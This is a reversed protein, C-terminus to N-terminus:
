GFMVQKKSGGLCFWNSLILWINFLFPFGVGSVQSSKGGMCCSCFTGSSIVWLTSRKPGASSGTLLSWRNGFSALVSSLRGSSLSFNSEWEFKHQQSLKVTWCGSVSSYIHPLSRCYKFASSLEETALMKTSLLFFFIPPVLLFFLMWTCSTVVQLIRSFDRTKMKQKAM